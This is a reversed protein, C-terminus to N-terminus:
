FLISEFCKIINLVNLKQIKIFIKSVIKVIREMLAMWVNTITKAKLAIEMTHVFPLM